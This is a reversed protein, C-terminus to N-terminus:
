YKMHIRLANNTSGHLCEEGPSHLHQGLVDKERQEDKKARHDGETPKKRGNREDTREFNVCITMPRAVATAMDKTGLNVSNWFKLITTM